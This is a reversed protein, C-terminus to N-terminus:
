VCYPRWFDVSERLHAVVNSDHPQRERFSLELFLTAEEAGSQNLAEQVRDPFIVGDDNFEKIFPKHSFVNTTRQKLHLVPAEKGFTRIWAYPDLDDPNPSSVDGHDVDLCILIPTEAKASENLSNMLSKTADITEGMERTISMPEWTLYELGAAKAYSSLEHWRDVVENLIYDKREDLDKVGYIGLLSGTSIAGLESSIDVFGKFWDLWYDRVGEDPHGFFNYRPSTFTHAIEIDYRDCAARIEAVQTKIVDKPYNPQLLDSVFQVCGVDLDERVMRAWEMPEPYRNIAFGLHVGLKMRTSTNM